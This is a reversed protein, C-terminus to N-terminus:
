KNIILNAKYNNSFFPDNGLYDKKNDEQKSSLLNGNYLIMKDERLLMLMMLSSVRDFNGMDNYFICEEILARNKLTFLKPLIVEEDEGDQIKKAMTTPQLLWNRCLTRAYANVAATATTGKTNNGFQKSKIMDRDKLFDLTDTLLYLSNMRQFYAFLGKKNNEYNMRGNYLLCLRRGIEYFDEAFMPRGTYEAVIRDTWLDLVLISGLSLSEAQDNDYPDCSLIYRNSYVRGEKNKQPLEMLEIAGEMKNDQSKFTRIPKKDSPRYTVEGSKELILNAVYIDDLERPNNDLQNLRETLDIVPFLNVGTKIIAEAPTIPVEAIVKLITNPDTSNYKVKFRQQLISILAKLLM